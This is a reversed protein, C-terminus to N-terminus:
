PHRRLRDLVEGHLASSGSAVVCRHGSHITLERGEWDTIAGGANRVIPTLACYDFPDLGGDVSIDLAGDSVRGYAHCGGGYVCWKTDSRLREFAAREGTDFPEPNGNGLIADALSAGKRTQVAEGNRRTPLGDGGIWREATVPNDIVGLIPTGKYALAILTGFTPIGTIFAKTGDIPDIIWVFDRDLGISEYEEGLIGHDPHAIALERRLSDEVRRDIETVPSRDAKTDFSRGKAIAERIIAGSRDALREAFGAFAHIDPKSM